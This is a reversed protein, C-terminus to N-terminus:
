LRTYGGVAIFESPLGSISLGRREHILAALVTCEGSLKASFFLNLYQFNPGKERCGGCVYLTHEFQICATIGPFHQQFHIANHTGLKFDFMGEESM